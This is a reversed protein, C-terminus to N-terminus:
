GVPEIQTIGFNFCRARRAHSRQTRITTHFIGPVLASFAIAPINTAIKSRSSPFAPNKSTASAKPQDHTDYQEKTVCALPLDLSLYQTRTRPSRRQRQSPARHQSDLLTSQRTIQALATAPYREASNPPQLGNQMVLEFLDRFGFDRAFGFCRKPPLVM